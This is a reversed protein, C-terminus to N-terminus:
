LPRDRGRHVLLWLGDEGARQLVRFPSWRLDEAPIQAFRDRFQLSAVVFPRDQDVSAGVEGLRQGAQAEDVLVLQGRDRNRDARAAAWEGVQSLVQLQVDDLLLAELAPGEGLDQHWLSSRGGRRPGRSISVAM